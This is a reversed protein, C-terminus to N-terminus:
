YFWRGMGVEWLFGVFVCATGRWVLPHCGREGAEHGGLGVAGVGEGFDVGQDPELGVGVQVAVRVLVWGGVGGGGEPGEHVSEQGFFGGGCWFGGGGLCWWSSADFFFGRRRPDAVRHRPQIEPVRRRRGFRRFAFLLMRARDRDLTQPSPFLVFHTKKEIALLIPRLRARLPEPAPLVLPVIGAADHHERLHKGLLLEQLQAGFEGVPDVADLLRRLVGVLQAHGLLPRADLRTSAYPQHDLPVAPTIPIVFLNLVAISQIKLILNLAAIIFAIGSFLDLAALFNIEVLPQGLFEVLGTRFEVLSLNGKIHDLGVHFLGLQELSGWRSSSLFLFRNFVNGDGHDHLSAPHFGLAPCALSDCVIDFRKSRPPM